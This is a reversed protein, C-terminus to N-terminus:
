LPEHANSHSASSRLSDHHTYTKLSPPSSDQRSDRSLPSDVVTGLVASLANLESSAFTRRLFCGRQSSRIPISCIFTKLLCQPDSPGSALGDESHSWSGAIQILEEEDWLPETGYAGLQKDSLDSFGGPSWYGGGVPNKFLTRGDLNPVKMNHDGKNSSNVWGACAFAICISLVIGGTPCEFQTPSCGSM